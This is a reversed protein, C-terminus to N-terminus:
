NFIYLNNLFITSSFMLWSNLNFFIFCSFKTQLFLACYIPIYFACSPNYFELIYKVWKKSKAPVAHMEIEAKLEKSPIRIPIVIESVPSFFHAIVAVIWLIYTM